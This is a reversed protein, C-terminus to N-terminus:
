APHEKGTIDGATLRARHAPRARGRDHKKARHLGLAQAPRNYGLENSYSKGCVECTFVEGVNFLNPPTGRDVKGVPPPPMGGSSAAADGVANRYERTTMGHIQRIHSGLSGYSSFGKGDHDTCAPLVCHFGGGRQQKAISPQQDLPVGYDDLLGRVPEIVEVRHRDCLDVRRLPPPRGDVDVALVVPTGPVQEDDNGLCVDCWTRTVVERAM